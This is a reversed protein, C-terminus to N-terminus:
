AHCPERVAAYAPLHASAVRAWDHVEAVRHGRASLGPGRFPDLALRVAAAISAPDLPDCWAADQGGLYETFPEIAPAVVPLGTAMAELVVLGFGEEVSPFVLADAVRYLSPMLEDPVPGLRVVAGEPLGSGALVDDFVRRYADHDLLSAGGAIVLRATPMGARVLRFAELIRVTNKRAEVGGVALLLPGPGSLGYRERAVRDLPDPSVRYRGRDVGNGVVDASVGFDEALRTRWRRSVVLHRDAARIARAQLALLRPDRFADVHHVTRVFGPILGREKLTALANGSIGDGAHFVDFRRNEPREFWRVYDAVRTEVMATVDHGVPGAPVSRTACRTPRFFGRGSADPAHVVAEHGLATLAEAVALAHVVGGRPNTSHALIAVRLSM